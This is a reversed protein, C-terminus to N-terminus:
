NLAEPIGCHFKVPKLSMMMNIFNIPFSLFLLGRKKNSEALFIFLANKIILFVKIDDNVEVGDAKFFIYDDILKYSSSDIKVFTNKCLLSLSPKERVFTDVIYEYEIRNLAKNM